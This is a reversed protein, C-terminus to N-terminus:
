VRRDTVAVLLVPVRSRNIIERAVEGRGPDDTHPYGIALLDPEVDDATMLIEDVPTGIRLVLRAEPAGVCYRALFENAYAQTEYHVQDSFSPISQEDDVHVVILELDASAGLEITRLMDRSNRPTGKMAILVRRLQAPAAADPPVLVVPKTIVRALALALHGAPRRGTPRARAGLVLAVVDDDDAMNAIQEFPDGPVRQFPVNLAAATAQTTHGDHGPYVHLAQVGADFVAGVALATALVPQAAASDDIAALITATM